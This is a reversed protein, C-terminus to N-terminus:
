ITWYQDSHASRLWMKKDYQTESGDNVKFCCDIFVERLDGECVDGSNCIM